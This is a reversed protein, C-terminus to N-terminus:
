PAVRRKPLDIYMGERWGPKAKMNVRKKGDLIVATGNDEIRDIFAKGKPAPAVKRDAMAQKQDPASAALDDMTEPRGLPPGYYGHESKLADAESMDPMGSPPAPGVQMDPGRFPPTPNPVAGAGMAYWNWPLAAPMPVPLTAAKADGYLPNGM